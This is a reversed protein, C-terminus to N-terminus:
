KVPGVYLDLWSLLETTLENMPVFHGTEYVLQKKQGGTSEKDLISQGPNKRPVSVSDSNAEAGRHLRM